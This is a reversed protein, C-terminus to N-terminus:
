EEPCPCETCEAEPASVQLEMYGDYSYHSAFADPLASTVPTGDTPEVFTSSVLTGDASVKGEAYLLNYGVEVLRWSGGPVAIGATKYPTLNWSARAPVNSNVTFSAVTRYKNTCNTNSMGTTEIIKTISGKFIKKQKHNGGTKNIEKVARALWKLAICFLALSSFVFNLMLIIFIANEYIIYFIFLIKCPVLFINSLFFFFAAKNAHPIAKKYKLDNASVVNKESKRQLM